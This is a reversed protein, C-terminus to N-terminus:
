SLNLKPLLVPFPIEPEFGATARYGAYSVADWVNTFKSVGYRQGREGIFVLWNGAEFLVSWEGSHSDGGISVSCGPNQKKWVMLAARLADYASNEELLNRENM